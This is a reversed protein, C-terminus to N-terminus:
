VGALKWQRQRRQHGLIGLGEISPRLPFLYKNYGRIPEPNVSFLLIPRMPM